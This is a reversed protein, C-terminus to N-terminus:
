NDANIKYHLDFEVDTTQLLNIQVLEEMIEIIEVMLTDLEFAPADNAYKLLYNLRHTLRKDRIFINTRPNLM